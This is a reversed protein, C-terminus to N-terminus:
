DPVYLSNFHLYRIGPISLLTIFAAYNSFSKMVTPLVSVEGSEVSSRYVIRGLLKDFVPQLSPRAGLQLPAMLATAKSM